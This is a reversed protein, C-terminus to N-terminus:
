SSHTSTFHFHVRPHQQLFDRVLQTEHASLNDLIIHIQQRAGHYWKQSFPLSTPAPITPRPEETCAAPRPTWRPICLFRETGTTSSATGSREGRRFRCFPDMRDLAQIATKEDVCFM